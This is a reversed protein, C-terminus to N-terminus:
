EEEGSGRVIRDKVKSTCKCWGREDFLQECAACKGYKDFPKPQEAKSEPEEEGLAQRARCGSVYVGVDGAVKDQDDNILHVTGLNLAWNEPAAYFRLAKELREIKKKTSRPDFGRIVKEYHEIKKRDAEVVPQIHRLIIDNLDNGTTNPMKGALIDRDVDHLRTYIEYQAALAAAKLDNTM